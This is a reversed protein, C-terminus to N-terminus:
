EPNKEFVTNIGDVRLIAKLDTQTKDGTPILLERLVLPADVNIRINASGVMKKDQDM